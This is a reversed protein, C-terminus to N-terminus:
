VLAPELKKSDLTEGYKARKIFQGKPLNSNLKGNEVLRQGRLLVEQITGAVTRGEYPNYDVNMHHTKASITYPKLRILTTPAAPTSRSETPIFQSPTSEASSERVETRENM